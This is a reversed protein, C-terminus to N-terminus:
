RQFKIEGDGSPSAIMNPAPSAAAPSSASTLTTVTEVPATGMQPSSLSSSGPSARGMNSQRPSRPRHTRTPPTASVEGPPNHSGLDVGTSVSSIRPLPVRHARPTRQSKPSM